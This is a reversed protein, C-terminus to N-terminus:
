YVRVRKGRTRQETINSIDRDEKARRKRRRDEEVEENQEIQQKIQKPTIDTKEFNNATTLERPKYPRKLQKGTEIDELIFRNKDKKTVRYVSESFTQADGKGFLEKQIYTRVLDGLELKPDITKIDQQPEKTGNWAEMPTCQITRHYQNNYLNVVKQIWDFWDYDRTASRFRAMM